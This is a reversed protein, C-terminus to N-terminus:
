ALLQLRASDISMTVLFQALRYVPVDHYDAADTCADIANTECQTRIYMYARLIDPHFMHFGKSQNVPQQGKIVHM